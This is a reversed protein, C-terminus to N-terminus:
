EARAAVALAVTAGKKVVSDGPPFQSIVTGPPRTNDPQDVRHVGLGVRGLAAGADHINQGILHPVRIPQPGQSVVIRVTSEAPTREGDAPAQALVVGAAVTESFAQEIEVKLRLAELAKIADALPMGVVSPMALERPGLSVVLEVQEGPRLAQLALPFQSIIEGAEYQDSHEEKLTFPLNREKLWPEAQELKLGVLQPVLAEDGTLPLTPSPIPSPQAAPTATPAAVTPVAPTPREFPAPTIPTPNFSRLFSLGAGALVIIFAIFVLALLVTGMAGSGAAGGPNPLAAPQPAQAPPEYDDEPEPQQERPDHQSRFRQTRHEEVIAEALEIGDVFRAQPDAATTDLVLRRIDPPVETPFEWVPDPRSQAAEDVDPADSTARRFPSRGTLLEYLIIGLAYVDSEATAPEGALQEPALYASRRAVAADPRRREGATASVLGFDGVKPRRDMTFLVDSPRLDGHILGRSHAHGVGTAIAYTLKLAQDLALPAEREIYEALSGGPLYEVVLYPHGQEEGLDYVPIVRDHALRSARYAQQQFRARVAHSAALHRRLLKVAVTRQETHDTARFVETVSGAGIREELEYRDGLLRATRTASDDM